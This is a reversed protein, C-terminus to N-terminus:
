SRPPYMLSLRVQLFQQMGSSHCINYESKGWHIFCLLLLSLGRFGQKPETRQPRKSHGYAHILKCVIPKLGGAVPTASPRSQRLCIRVVRVHKCTSSLDSWGAASVSSCSLCTSCLMLTYVCPLRVAQACMHAGSLVRFGQGRLKLVHIAPPGEIPDMVHEVSTRRPM